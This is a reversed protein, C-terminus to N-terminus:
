SSLEEKLYKVEILDSARIIANKEVGIPTTLNSVGIYKLQPDFAEVRCKLNRSCEYMRISAEMGQCCSLFHLFEDRCKFNLKQDKETTDIETTTESSQPQAQDM